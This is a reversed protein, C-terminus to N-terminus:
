QEPNQLAEKFTEAADKHAIEHEIKLIRIVQKLTRLDVKESFEDDLTKLDERIGVIQGELEERRTIYEQVCNKLEDLEAPGMAEIKNVAKNKAM